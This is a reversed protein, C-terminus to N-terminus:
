EALVVAMNDLVNWSELFNQTARGYTLAGDLVIITEPTYGIVIVTHERAAVRVKRGTRTTYISSKGSQVHGTVWVIVPRGTAIEQKLEELTMNRRAQAALGYERLLTAVPPAHVGYSRPPLLGWVGGVDGVFGEEPNDSRPLQQQFALEEIKVGFYAAWDVASRAECSLPLTQSKGKLPIRAQPPLTPSPSPSPTITETKTPQATITKSATSTPSANKTERVPLVTLLPPTSTIALSQLARNVTPAPTCNTLFLVCIGAVLILRTQTVM